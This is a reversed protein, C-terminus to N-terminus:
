KVKLKNLLYSVVFGLFLSIGLIFVYPDNIEDGGGTDM